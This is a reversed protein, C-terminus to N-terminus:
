IYSSLIPRKPAGLLGFGGVHKIFLTIRLKYKGKLFVYDTSNTNYITKKTLDFKPAAGYLTKLMATKIKGVHMGLTASGCWVILWFCPYIMVM